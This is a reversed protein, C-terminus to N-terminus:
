PFVTGRIAAPPAAQLGPPAATGGVGVERCRVGPMLGRVGGVAALEGCGRGGGPGRGWEVGAFMAGRASVSAVGGAGPCASLPEGWLGGRAGM